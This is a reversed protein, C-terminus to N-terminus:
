DFPFSGLHGLFDHIFCYLTHCASLLLQKGVKSRNASAASTGHDEVANLGIVIANRGGDVLHSSDFRRIGVGENDLRPVFRSKATDVM